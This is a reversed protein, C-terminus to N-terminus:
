PNICKNTNRRVIGLYSIEKYIENQLMGAIILLCSSLGCCTWVVALDFFNGTSQNTM